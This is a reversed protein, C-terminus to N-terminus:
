GARMSDLIAKRKSDSKARMRKTRKDGFYDAHLNLRYTKNM